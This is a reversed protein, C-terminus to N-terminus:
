LIRYEFGFVLMGGFQTPTVFQFSPQKEELLECAAFEQGTLEWEALATIKNEKPTASWHCHVTTFSGNLL